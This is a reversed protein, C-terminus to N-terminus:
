LVSFFLPSIEQFFRFFLSYSPHKLNHHKYSSYVCVHSVCLCPIHLQIMRYFCLTRTLFLLGEVMTSTTRVSDGERDSLIERWLGVGIPIRGGHTLLHREDGYRKLFHKLPLQKYKYIKLTTGSIFWFKLLTLYCFFLLPFYLLTNDNYSRRVKRKEGHKWDFGITGGRGLIRFRFM